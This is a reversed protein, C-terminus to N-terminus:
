IAIFARLLSNISWPRVVRYWRSNFCNYHRKLIPVVRM